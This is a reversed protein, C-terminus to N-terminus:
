LLQNSFMQKSKQFLAIEGIGCQFCKQKFKMPPFDLYFANEASFKRQHKPSFAFFIQKIDQLILNTNKAIKEM